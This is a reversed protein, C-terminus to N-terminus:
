SGHKAPFIFRDLSLPIFRTAFHVLMAFGALGVLLWQLYLHVNGWTTYGSPLISLTHSGVLISFLFLAATLLLAIQQLISIGQNMRSAAAKTGIVGIGIGILTIEAYWSSVIFDPLSAELAVNIGYIGGVATLGAGIVIGELAM